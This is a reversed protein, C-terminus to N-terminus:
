VIKKLPKSFKSIAYGAGSGVLTAGVLAGFQVEPSEGQTMIASGFQGLAGGIVTNKIARPIKKHKSSLGVGVAGIAGLSQMALNSGSAFDSGTNEAVVGGAITAGIMTSYVPLMGKVFGKGTRDTTPLIMDGFFSAAKDLHENDM